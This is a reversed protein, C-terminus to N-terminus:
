NAKRLAALLDAHPKKGLFAATARGNGDLVLTYPVRDIALQDRVNREPDHLMASAVAALGSRALLSAALEVKGQVMITVVQFGDDRALRALDPLEEICYACNPRWFAVLTPKGRLVEPDFAGGNMDPLALMTLIDGDPPRPGDKKCGGGLQLVLGLLFIFHVSTKAVAPLTARIRKSTHDCAKAARPSVWQPRLGTPM